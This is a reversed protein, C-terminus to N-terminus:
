SKPLGGGPKQLVVVIAAGSADTSTGALLGGAMALARFGEPLVATALVSGDPELVTWERSRGLPDNSASFREVWARGAEDCLLGTALPGNEPFFLKFRSFATEVARDDDPTADSQPERQIRWRLYAKKDAEGLVPAPWPIRIARLLDLDARYWEITGDIPNFVVLREDGCTAWLPASTLFLAMGYREYVMDADDSFEFVRASPAGDAGFALLDSLAAEVPQRLGRPASQLLFGGAFARAMLVPSHTLDRVDSRVIGWEARLRRASGGGRSDPEVPILNKSAVDWVFTQQPTRVLSWPNWFSTDEHVGAAGRVAGTVAGTYVYPPRSTLVILGGDGDLLMDRVEGALPPSVYLREAIQFRPYPDPSSADPAAPVCSSAHLCLLAALPPPLRPM